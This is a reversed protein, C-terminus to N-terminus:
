QSTAQPWLLHSQYTTLTAIVVIRYAASHPPWCTILTIRQGLNPALWQTADPHEGESAAIAFVTEVRYFYTRHGARLAIPDGTRLYPLQRFVSHAWVSAQGSPSHGAIVTNGGWGPWASRNHWGADSTQWLMGNQRVAELSNWYPTNPLWLRSPARNSPVLSIESTPLHPSLPRAALLVSEHSQQSLRAYGRMAAGGFALGAGACFLSLFIIQWLRTHNMNALM